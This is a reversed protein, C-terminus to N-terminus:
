SFRLIARDVYPMTKGDNSKLICRFKINSIESSQLSYTLIIANHETNTVLKYEGEDNYLKYDANEILERGLIHDAMDEVLLKLNNPFLPDIVSFIKGDAVRKINISAGDTSVVESNKPNYVEAFNSDNISISHIGAPIEIKGTAWKGNILMENPGLDIKKSSDIRVNTSFLGGKSTWGDSSESYIKISNTDVFEIPLDLESMHGGEVKSFSDVRIMKNEHAPNALLLSPTPVEEKIVRTSPRIKEWGRDNINLYYDLTTGPNEYTCCTNLAIYSYDGGVPISETEYIAEGDITEESIFIKKINVRYGYKGNSIYDSKPKHFVIKIYRDSILGTGVISNKIYRESTYAESYAANDPSSYVSVINPSELSMEIQSFSDESRRDIIVEIDKPGSTYEERSITIGDSEVISALVARGSSKLHAQMQSAKAEVKNLSSSETDAETKGTLMGDIVLATSAPSRISEDSFNLSMNLKSAIGSKPDSVQAARLKLLSNNIRKSLSNIRPQISGIKYDFYNLLKNVIEEEHMLKDDAYNLIGNFLDRDIINGHKILTGIDVPALSGGYKLINDETVDLNNRILYEIIASRM